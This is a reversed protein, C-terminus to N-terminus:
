LVMKFPKKLLIIVMQKLVEICIFLSGEEVQRSDYAIKKIEINSIM